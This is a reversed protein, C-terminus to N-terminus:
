LIPPSGQWEEAKVPTKVGHSNPFSMELRQSVPPIQSKLGAIINSFLTTAGPCLGWKLSPQRPPLSMGSPAWPGSLVLLNALEEWPVCSALIAAFKHTGSIM